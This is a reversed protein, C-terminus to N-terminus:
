FSYLKKQFLHGLLLDKLITYAMRKKKIEKRGYQRAMYKHKLEQKQRSM